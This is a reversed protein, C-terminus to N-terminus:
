SMVQRKKMQSSLFAELQIFDMDTSVLTSIM